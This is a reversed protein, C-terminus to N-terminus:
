VGGVVRVNVSVRREKQRLQLCLCRGGDSGIRLTDLRAVEEEARAADREVGGRHLDDLATHLGLSLLRELIELGNNLGASSLEAFDDLGSHTGEM